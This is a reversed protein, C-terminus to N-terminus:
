RIAADPFIRCRRFCKKSIEGLFDLSQPRGISAEMEAAKQWDSHWGYFEAFIRPLGVFLISHVMGAVLCQGIAIRRQEPQWRHALFFLLLWAPLVISSSHLLFALHTLCGLLAMGWYSPRRIQVALWWFALGVAAMVPGHFEVVSGFLTAAPSLAFLATAIERVGKSRGLVRLGAHFLAVGTAMGVASFANGLVIPSLQLGTWEILRSFVALAPLYGVHWPHREGTQLLRLLDPGDTKYFVEAGLFLYLLLSGLFWALAIARGLWRDRRESSVRRVTGTACGVTLHM